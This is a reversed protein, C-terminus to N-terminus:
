KKNLYLKIHTFNYSCKTIKLTNGKRTLGIYILHYKHLILDVESLINHLNEEISLM